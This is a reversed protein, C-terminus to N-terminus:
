KIEGYHVDIVVKQMQIVLDRALGERGYSIGAEFDDEQDEKAAGAREAIEMLKDILKIYEKEFYEVEM